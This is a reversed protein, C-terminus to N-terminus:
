STFSSPVSRVPFRFASLRTDLRGCRKPHPLADQPIREGTPTGGRSKRQADFRGQGAEPWAEQSAAAMGVSVALHANGVGAQGLGTICRVSREYHRDASAWLRGLATQSVARPCRVRETYRIADPYTGSTLSIRIPIKILSM